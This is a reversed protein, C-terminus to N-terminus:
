LDRVHRRATEPLCVPPIGNAFLCGGRTSQSRAVFRTEGRTVGGGDGGRHASDFHVAAGPVAAPDHCCLAREACALDGALALAHAFGFGSGHRYPRLGVRNM